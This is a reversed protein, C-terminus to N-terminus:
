GRKVIVPMGDKIETNAEDLKIKVGYVLSTRNDPTLIQKPTFESKNNIKIVTAPFEKNSGDVKVLMKDGINMSALQTQSVYIMVTTEVMDILEVVPRHMTVTESLEYYIQNIFADVPAKLICDKISKDILMLRANLQERNAVIAENQKEIIKKQSEAQHLTNKIDDLNQEPSSEAEVLSAIRQAKNDLYAIEKEAQQLQLTNSQKKISLEHMSAKIEKKQLHFAMTDIIAIIDGRQVNDGEQFFLDTLNGNTQSSLTINRLEALSTWEEADRKCATLILLALILAIMIRKM